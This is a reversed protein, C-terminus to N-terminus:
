GGSRTSEQREVAVGSEAAWMPGYLDPRRDRVIDFEYEGPVVVVHKADADEPSIDAVLLCESVDDAEALVSGRPDIVQSRGIFTFGRETGVRNANVVFVRNECARARNFFAAHSEAGRPLNAPNLIVRAGGLALTRAAEPLRQDYCILMACPGWATRFVPLSGGPSLLRDVGLHILHSKRYHAVVGEGDLLVATNFFREGDRELLGVVAAVGLEACLAAVRGTAEGPIPEALAAVESGDTIVYGTLTCEPFVVLEVAQDSAERLVREVTALNRQKDAVAIDIQSAAVRM